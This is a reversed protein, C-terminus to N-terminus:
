TARLIVTIILKFSLIKQTKVIVLTYDFVQVLLLLDKILKFYVTFLEKCVTSKHGIDKILSFAFSLLV